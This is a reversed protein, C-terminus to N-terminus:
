FPLVVLIALVLGGAAAQLDDELFGVIHGGEFGDEADEVGFIARAFQEVLGDVLIDDIQLVLRRSCGEVAGLVLIHTRGCVELLLSRDIEYFHKVSLILILEEGGGFARLDEVAVHQHHRVQVLGDETPVGARQAGQARSAQPEQQPPPQLAAAAPQLIQQLNFLSPVKSDGSTIKEIQAQQDGPLPKFQHPPAARLEEAAARLRPQSVGSAAQSQYGEPGPPLDHEQTQDPLCHSSNSVSYHKLYEQSAQAVICWCDGM